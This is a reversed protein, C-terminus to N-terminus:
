LLFSSLGCLRIDIGRRRPLMAGCRAAAYASVALIASISDVPDFELHRLRALDRAVSLALRERDRDVALYRIYQAV